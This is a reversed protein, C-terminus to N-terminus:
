RWGVSWASGIEVDSAMESCITLRLDTSNDPLIFGTSRKRLVLSRQPNGDLLIAAVAGVAGHVFGNVSGVCRREVRAFNEANINQRAERHRSSLECSVDSKRAGFKVTEQGLAHAHRWVQRLPQTQRQAVPGM